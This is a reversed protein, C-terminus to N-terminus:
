VTLLAKIFKQGHRTVTNIQINENRTVKILDNEAWEELITCVVVHKTQTKQSITQSNFNKNELEVAIEKFTDLISGSHKLYEYFGKRTMTIIYDDLEQDKRTYKIIRTSEFNELAKLISSELDLATCPTFKFNCCNYSRSLDDRRKIDDGIARLVNLESLELM